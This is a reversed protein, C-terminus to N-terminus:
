NKKDNTVCKYSYGTPLPPLNLDSCNTNNSPLSVYISSNDCVNSPFNNADTLYFNLATRLSDLDSVRKSDRTKKLMEAPNITIVVVSMLVALIAIVVLLEILTFSKSNHDLITSFM